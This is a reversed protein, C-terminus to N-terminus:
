NLSAIVIWKTNVALLGEPAPRAKICLQFHGGHDIQRVNTRKIYAPRADGPSQHNPPTSKKKKQGGWQTM